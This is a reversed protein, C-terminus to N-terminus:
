CGYAPRTTTCMERVFVHFFESFRVVVFGKAGRMGFTSIMSGDFIMPMAM